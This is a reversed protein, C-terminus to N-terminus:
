AQSLSSNYYRADGTVEEGVFSPLTVPCDESPLEVEAVVLGAHRGEFVDVEWVLGEFPVIYRKKAVTRGGCCAELMQRADDVPISYEWEPRAIDSGSSKVTIWAKEGSIRVRVTASPDTCLYGQAIERCETASSLFSDNKVLFKREIEISM